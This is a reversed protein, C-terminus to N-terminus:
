YLRLTSANCLELSDTVRSCGFVADCKNSGAETRAQSLFRGQETPWPWLCRSLFCVLQGVNAKLTHTHTHQTSLRCARLVRSLDEGVMGGRERERRKVKQSFRQLQEDCRAWFYVTAMSLFKAVVDCRLTRPEKPGGHGM